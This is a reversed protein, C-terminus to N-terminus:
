PTDKPKTYLPIPTGFGCGVDEDEDRSWAPFTSKAGGELEITVIWAVPEQKEWADLREQLDAERGQAWEARRELKIVHERLEDIEEQMLRLQSGWPDAEAREQWTKITM